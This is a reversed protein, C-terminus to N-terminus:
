HGVGHFGGDHVSGVHVGGSAVHFGGRFGLGVRALFSRGIRGSNFGNFGRNNAGIAGHLVGGRFESTPAFAQNTGRVDPRGAFTRGYDRYPSQDYVVGRGRWDTGWHNWGWGYGAFAGIGVGLGLLIDPGTVYAGPLWDWGPYAALTEGYVLWPDYEPLYVMGADAPEIQITDGEYAVVQQPTGTLHGAQQARRRMVQIADLVEQPENAYANGLAWGWTLNVAMNALVLPFQTLAKVSPDWAQQNVAQAFEAGSLESHQRIWRNAETVENPWASAALIEAILNDPYLAIPAVLQGLENPSEFPTQILPANNSQTIADANGSQVTALVLSASLVLTMSRKPWDM